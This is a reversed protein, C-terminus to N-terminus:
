SVYPNLCKRVQPKGAKGHHTTRIRAPKSYTTQLHCQLHCSTVVTAQVPACARSLTLSQNLMFTSRKTIVSLAYHM